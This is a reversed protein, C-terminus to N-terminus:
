RGNPLTVTFPSKLTFEIKTESPIKVQDAKTAAQVGAGTGAGIGAGIAAGKKGGAIAGILGGLVAGGGVTEATRKGRSAGVAKFASTQVAYPTGYATVEVLEVELQSQGKMKGATASQILRVRADSGEPIIVEDGVVVPNSVSAAFEDGSQNRESDIPDIMRVAITAGAPVDIERPPPPPPPAAHAPPAPQATATHSPAAPAAASNSNESASSSSSPSGEASARHKKPPATQVPASRTKRAPKAEEREPPPNNEATMVPEPPAATATPSAGLGLQNIVQKVGSVEGALREAASKELDTNVTGSLVVVGKQSVVQINRTKLVPDQYLKSQVETVITKDDSPKFSNVLNCGSALSVVLFVSALKLANGRM